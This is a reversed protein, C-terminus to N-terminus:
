VEFKERYEKTWHDMILFHNGPRTMNWTFWAVPFYATGEWGKNPMKFNVRPSFWIITLQPLLNGVLKHFSKLSVTETPMLLAWPKGIEICREVFDIREAFPPNTIIADIAQMEGLALNHTLFNHGLLIDTSIVSLNEPLALSLYGEGCAPEWITDFGELHVIEMLPELAYGPTQILDKGSKAKYNERGAGDKYTM